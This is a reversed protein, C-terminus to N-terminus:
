GSPKAWGRSSLLAQVRTRIDERVERVADAGLGKPDRLPWDDRLLGPVVPCDEECGMTILLCATQALAETLKQPQQQSLEIGLERMVEVVGPHVQAAPQTGASIARAKDSDALRNFLAAAIQSRGANHICAFLVVAPSPTHKTTMGANEL